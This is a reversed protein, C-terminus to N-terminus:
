PVPHRLVATCQLASGPRVNAAPITVSTSTVSVLNGTPNGMSAANTDLCSFAGLFWRPEPLTVTLATATNPANLTQSSSVFPANLATSKLALSTWGNTGSFTFSFPPVLNPPLPSLVIQRVSLTTPKATNTITCSLTDGTQATFSSGLLNPLQGGATNSCSLSSNYYSLTSASGAAMTEGIRYSSGASAAFSTIVGTGALVISGSGQTTASASTALALADSTIQLTFQDANDVRNGSLAKRVTITPSNGTVTLTATDCVSANPAPACLKYIVTCRASGIPLTYGLVGTTNTAPSFPAPNACSGGTVTFTSGSPFKDNTSVNSTSAIGVQKNDTDDVADIVSNNTTATCSRCAIDGGGSVSASNATSVAATNAVNVPITVVITGNAGADIACGNTDTAGAAPCGRLTGGTATIADSTTIGLPLTDALSIPATTPGSAIEINILYSQGAAGVTLVGPSATKTVTLAPLGTFAFNAPSAGYGQAAAAGGGGLAAGLATVTSTNNAATLSSATVQCKGTTASTTCSSALKAGASAAGFSVLTPTHWFNGDSGVLFAELVDQASGNATQNNVLTKVGSNSLTLSPGVTIQTSSSPSIPGFGTGSDGLWCGSPNASSNEDCFLISPYQIFGASSITGTKLLQLTLSFSPYYVPSGSSNESTVVTSGSGTFSIPSGNFLLQLGLGPVGTQMVGGSLYLPSVSAVRMQRPNRVNSPTDDTVYGSGSLSTSWYVKGTPDSANVPLSSPVSYVTQGTWNQYTRAFAVQSALGLLLLLIIGSIKKSGIHLLKKIM